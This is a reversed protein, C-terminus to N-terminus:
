NIEVYSQEAFNYQLVSRLTLFSFLSASSLAKSKNSNTPKVSLFFYDGAEQIIKWIKSANIKNM